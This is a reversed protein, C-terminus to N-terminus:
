LAFCGAAADTLLRMVLRPYPFGRRDMTAPSGSPSLPTTLPAERGDASEVLATKRQERGPLINRGSRPRPKM